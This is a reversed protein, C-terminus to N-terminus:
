VLCPFSLDTHSPLLLRLVCRPVKQCRYREGSDVLSSTESGFNIRHFRLLSLCDQMSQPVEAQIRTPQRLLLPDFSAPSWPHVGIAKCSSSTIRYKFRSAMGPSVQYRSYLLSEPFHKMTTCIWGAAVTLILRAFSSIPM